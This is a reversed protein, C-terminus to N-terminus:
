RTRIPARRPEHERRRQPPKYTDALKEHGRLRARPPSPDDIRMGGPSPSKPRDSLRDNGGGGGEDEDPPAEWASVSESRLFMVFLVTGFGLAILHLTGFIVMLEQEATVSDLTGRFLLRRPTALM